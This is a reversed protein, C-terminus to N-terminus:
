QGGDIVVDSGTLFGSGGAADSVLLAVFKGLTKPSAFSHIPHDAVFNLCLPGLALSCVTGCAYPKAVRQGM